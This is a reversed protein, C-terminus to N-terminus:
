RDRVGAEESKCGEVTHRKGKSEGRTGDELREERTRVVGQQGAWQIAEWVDGGEVGVGLEMLCWWSPTSYSVLKRLDLSTSCVVMPVDHWLSELVSNWECHSLVRPHTCWSTYM